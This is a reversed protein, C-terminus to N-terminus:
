PAAIIGGRLTGHHALINHIRDGVPRLVVIDVTEPEVKHAKDVLFSHLFDTGGKILDIRRDHDDAFAPIHVGCHGLAFHGYLRIRTFQCCIFRRDAEEIIRVAIGNLAAHEIRLRLPEDLPVLPLFVQKGIIEQAALVAAAERWARIAIGIRIVATRRLYHLIHFDM